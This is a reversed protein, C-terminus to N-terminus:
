WALIRRKSFRPLDKPHIGHPETRSEASNVIETLRKDSFTNHSSLLSPLKTRARFVKGSCDNLLSLEGAISSKFLKLNILM